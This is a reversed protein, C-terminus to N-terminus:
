PVRSTRDVLGGDGVAVTEDAAGTVRLLAAGEGYYGRSRSREDDQHLRVHRATAPSPLVTDSVRGAVSETWASLHVVLGQQTLLVSAM